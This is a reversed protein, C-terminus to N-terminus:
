LTTKKINKSEVNFSIPGIKQLLETGRDTKCLEEQLQKVRSRLMENERILLAQTSLVEFVEKVASHQRRHM